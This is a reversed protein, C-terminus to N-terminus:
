CSSPVNEERESGENISCQGVYIVVRSHDEPVGQTANFAAVRARLDGLQRARPINGPDELVRTNTPRIRAIDARTTDTSADVVILLVEPDLSRLFAEINGAENKTPVVVTLAELRM